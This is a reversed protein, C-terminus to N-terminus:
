TDTLFLIAATHTIARARQNQTRSKFFAAGSIDYARICRFAQRILLDFKSITSSKGVAWSHYLRVRNGVLLKLDIGLMQTNAPLSDVIVSIVSYIYKIRSYATDCNKAYSRREVSPAGASAKPHMPSLISHLMSSRNHMQLIISSTCALIVYMYAARRRVPIM